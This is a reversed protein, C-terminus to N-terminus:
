HGQEFNWWHGSPLKQSMQYHRWVEGFERYSELISMKRNEWRETGERDSKSIKRAEELPQQPPIPAPLM